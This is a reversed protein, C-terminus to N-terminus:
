NCGMSHGVSIPLYACVYLRAMASASASTEHSAGGRGSSASRTAVMVNNPALNLETRASAVEHLESGHSVTAASAKDGCASGIMRAAFCSARSLIATPEHTSATSTNGLTRSVRHAPSASVTSESGSAAAGGTITVIVETPEYAVTCSDGNSFSCDVASFTGTISSANLVDFTEGTTPSFSTLADVNLTGGLIAAGLINLVDYKTKPTTGGLDIDLVGGSGQTYPGKITLQGAKQAATGPSLQGGTLNFDGTITGIGFVSGGSVNIFAGSAVALTGNVSMTGMTQTYSGTGGITFSSGNEIALSGANNFAGSTFFKRSGEVTFSATSGNNALNALGNNGSQDTIAANTGDLTIHADNTTINAGEFELTGDVIYTGGTLTTGSFNTFQGSTNNIYLTDGKDVTVTGQNSFGAASADIELLITSNELITGTNVLGMNGQGINGPGEITNSSELVNTSVAATIVGQGNSPLIIKGSGVLNVSASAIQLTTADGVSNLEITSTNGITGMLSTISGDALQISGSGSITVGNLAVNSSAPVEIAATKDTLTLEGSDITVGSQLVVTANSAVIKGKSTQSYTGAELQLSGFSNDAEMTGSNSIIGAADIILPTTQNALITGQNNLGMMGNGINGSGSIFNNVNTLVDTSATGEIVNGAFNSLSVEGKSGTLTIDGEIQLVAPGDSDGVNIMGTNKLIGANTVALKEGNGVNLTGANILTGVSMIGTSDGYYDLTTVAGSSNTFTGTVTLSTSAGQFNEANTYLHGGYGNTLNGNVTLNTGLELDLEGGTGITLTGPIPTATFIQGNGIVLIGEVYGLKALGNAAGANMSGYLYIQSNAVVDTLGDPQDTLNITAGNGINLYGFNDMEGVNMVGYYLTTNAGSSNTYAGTVTLTSATGGAFNMQVGASNTVTLNGVVTMNTGLDLQLVAGQNGSITLTGTGPTDTFTQGNELYLAGEISGLNALGNATGAELTGYVSLSSGAVVDTIGNPQNTMNLTSGAGIFLGGTNVLTGVNMVDSTDGYDGISTSHGNTFTGTVTLTNGPGGLNKVNTYLAGSNTLNGNITLNTGSELDLESHQGSITFTGSQPTDTFTQGNGIVLFGEVSGLNALGNAAGTNVSGYVEMYSGAGIDTIGNPQNTLNLTTGAEIGLSGNNVLTGVNMVDSAGGSYGITATAGSNNTFTGAVNVMNAASNLGQFNTYFQGSNTLNETVALSSGQDLDFTGTNTMMGNVTLANANNFYIAGGNAVGTTTLTSGSTTLLESGSGLTLNDISPSIDLTITVAPSSLLTVDYTNGGGNNPVVSPSWSGANSWNGSTAGNVQTQASAPRPFMCGVIVAFMCVFGWFLKGMRLKKNTGFSSTHM